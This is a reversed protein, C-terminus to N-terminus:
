WGEWGVVVLGFLVNPQSHPPLTRLDQTYLNSSRGAMPIPHNIPIEKEQTPNEKQGQLPLFYSSRNFCIKPTLMLFKPRVYRTTTPRQGMQEAMFAAQPTPTTFHPYTVASLTLM